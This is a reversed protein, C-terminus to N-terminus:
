DCSIKQAELLARYATVAAEGTLLSASGAAWDDPQMEVIWGEGYPDRMALEPDAMVRENGRLLIGRFPASLPGIYKLSEVLAISSGRAVVQGLRKEVVEVSVVSNRLIAYGAATLGLRVNGDPLPRGWIHKEIVYYLDEPIECQHINAM